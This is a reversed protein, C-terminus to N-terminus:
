FQKPLPLFPRIAALFAGPADVHAFHSANPLEVFQADPLLARFRQGVVPPVMKDRASYVLLLPVPFRGLQRLAAQFEGMAQVDLTEALMRTFARLGEPTRLPTAYEKHEERSKLTEDFYHVHQHVWREPNRWVLWRILAQHRPVLALALRLARMRATPLGPSHLNVLRSMATPQQLALRMALYGGLSNGIVPAGWIGLARMTEGISEALADPHYSTDPKDSQGSGVLDPVYLTYHAGLPELLYRWSYSTTMFGHLLLLPPGQGFTRVHLNIRGFPRSHVAVTEARSEFYRHPLRPLLPVQAFPLQQFPALM